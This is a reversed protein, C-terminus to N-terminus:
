LEDWDIERVRGKRIDDRAEEALRALVDQSNAFAEDWRLEDALEDLIVAAIADQREDPLAKVAAIAKELSQTM